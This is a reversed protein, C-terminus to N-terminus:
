LKLGRYWFVCSFCLDVFENVLIWFLFLKLLDSGHIDDLVQKYIFICFIIFYIGSLM